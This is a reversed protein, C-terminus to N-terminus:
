TTSPGPAKRLIAGAVRELESFLVQDPAIVVQAQREGDATDVVVADGAALELGMSDFYQVPDSRGFRVGAARPRRGLGELAM